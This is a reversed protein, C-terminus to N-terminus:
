ARFGAQWYTHGDTHVFSTQGARPDTKSIKIEGLSGENGTGTNFSGDWARIKMEQAMRDIRCAVGITGNGAFVQGIIKYVSGLLAILASGSDGGLAAGASEDEYKYVILDSYSMNGISPMNVSSSAGIQSVRLNCSPSNTFGKPGSTRGTSFLRPNSTLLSDIESATAFPMPSAFPDAGIPGWMKYSNASIFNPNMMLVASDIYNANTLSVGSYRKIRTAVLKNPNDAGDASLAGPNYMNNNVWMIPDYTNFGDFTRESCFVYNKVAVHANTIGVIKGDLADVCFFGLTGVEINYSGSGNPIWNTPFQIIEQGGMMPNLFREGSQAPQLRKINPDGASYCALLEPINSEQVDTNIKTGCMDIESPIMEGAPIQDAPLKRNVQFVISIQSTKQGGVYKHGLSVGHVSEPTSDYLEQIKLKIDNNLNM